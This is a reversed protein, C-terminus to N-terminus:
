RSSDLLELCVFRDELLTKLIGFSIVVPKFSEAEEEILNYDISALKEDYDLSAEYVNGGFFVSGSRDEALADRLGELYVPTCEDRLFLYLVEEQSNSLRPDGIDIM